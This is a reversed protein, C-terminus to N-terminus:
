VVKKRCRKKPSKAEKKPPRLPERQRTLFDPGSSWAATEIDYVIDTGQILIPNHVAALIQHGAAAMEEFKRVIAYASRPSMGMDPEDLLYLTPKDALPTQFLIDRLVEGHSRFMGAVQFKGAPGNMVYSKSRPNDKEYDFSLIQCPSVTLGLVKSSREDKQGIRRILKLLSSKGSGQDGVLLNVGPRFEIAYGARFCRYDVLFEIRKIM